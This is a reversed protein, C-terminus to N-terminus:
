NGPCILHAPDISMKLFSKFCWRHSSTYLWYSYKMKQSMHKTINKTGKQSTGQYLNKNKILASYLDWQNISKLISQSISQNISQNISQSVSQVENQVAIELESACSNKFFILKLCFLVFGQMVSSHRHNLCTYWGERTCAACYIPDITCLKGPKHKTLNHTCMPQTWIATNQRFNIKIGQSSFCYRPNKPYRM